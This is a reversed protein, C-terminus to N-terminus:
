SRARVQVRTGKGPTSDIRLDADLAHAHEQLSNLGRGPAPHATDFGAGDDEVTVSVPAAALTVNVRRPLGHRVANSVSEIAIKAMNYADGQSIPAKDRVEIEFMVGAAECLNGAQRRVEVALGAMSAPEGDIGAVLERLEILAERARRQARLLPDAQANGAGGARAVEHWLAIESLASGLTGDLTRGIRAREDLTGKVRAREAKAFAGQRTWDALYATLLYVVAGMGAMFFSVLSKDSVELGNMYGLGGLVPALVSLALSGVSKPNGFADFLVILLYLIWLAYVIKPTSFPISVTALLNAGHSILERPAPPVRRYGMAVIAAFVALHVALGAAILAPDCGTWARVPPLLFFFLIGLVIPLDVRFLFRASYTDDGFVDTDPQPWLTWSSGPAKNM